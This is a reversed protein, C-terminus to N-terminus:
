GTPPAFQSITLAAGQPDRLQATKTWPTEATRVVTAGLSQALEADRDRDAVTFTVHWHPPEDPEALIAGGIVDAFGPPAAAQRVRIDPDVTAELHDGYGPVRIM